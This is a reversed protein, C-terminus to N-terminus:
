GATYWCPIKLTVTFVELGEIFHCCELLMNQYVMIQGLLTTSNHSSLHNEQNRLFIFYISHTFMFVHICKCFYGNRSLSQMACRHTVLLSQIQLLGNKFWLRNLNANYSLSDWLEKPDIRISQKKYHVIISRRVIDHPNRLKNLMFLRKCYLNALFTDTAKYILIM